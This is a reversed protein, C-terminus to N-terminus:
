CIFNKIFSNSFYKYTGEFVLIHFNLHLPYNSILIFLIKFPYFTKIKQNKKLFFLFFILSTFYILRYFKSKLFFSIIHPFKKIEWIRVFSRTQEKKCMYTM